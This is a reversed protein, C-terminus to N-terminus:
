ESNLNKINLKKPFIEYRLGSLKKSQNKVKNVLFKHDM